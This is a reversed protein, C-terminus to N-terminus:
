KNTSKDLDDRKLTIGHWYDNPDPVSPTHFDVNEPPRNDEFVDIIRPGLSIDVETMISTIKKKKLYYEYILM